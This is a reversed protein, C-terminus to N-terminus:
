KGNQPKRYKKGDELYVSDSPLADFQKQSTITPYSANSKTEVPRAKYAGPSIPEESVGVGGVAEQYRNSFNQLGPYASELIRQERNMIRSAEKLNDELSNATLSRWNYIPGLIRQESSTLSKGGTKFEEAQFRALKQALEPYGKQLSLIVDPMYNNEPGILKRVEPKQLDNLVEDVNQMAEFRFRHENRTEKDKPIDGSGGQGQKNERIDLGRKMLALREDGQSEMKLEHRTPTNKDEEKRMNDQRSQAVKVAEGLVKSVGFPGVKNFLERLFDANEENITQMIKNHAAEKNVPALALADQVGRHLNEITKDLIKQNTDFIDKQQKIIDARGQQYGELMGNQAALATQAANKGKGGVMVGLLNTVALITALREPNEQDPIYAAASKKDVADQYKQQIPELQKIQTEGFERMGKAYKAEDESKRIEKEQAVKQESELSKIYKERLPDVTEQEYKQSPRVVPANLDTKLTDALAM